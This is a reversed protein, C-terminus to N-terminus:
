PREEEIRGPLVNRVKRAPTSTARTMKGLTGARMYRARLADYRGSEFHEAFLGVDQLTKSKGSHLEAGLPIRDLMARRAEATTDVVLVGFHNARIAAAVRHITAESAPASSAARQDVAELDLTERRARAPL